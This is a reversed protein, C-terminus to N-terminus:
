NVKVMGTVLYFLTPLSFCTLQKPRRPCLCSAWSKFKLSYWDLVFPFHFSIIKSPQTKILKKGERPDLYRLNIFPYISQCGWPPPPLAQPLSISNNSRGRCLQPTSTFNGLGTSNLTHDVSPVAGGFTVLWCYSNLFQSYATLSKCSCLLTTNQRSFVTKKFFIFKCKTHRNKDSKELIKNKHYNVGIM